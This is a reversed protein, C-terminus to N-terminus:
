KNAVYLSGDNSVGRVKYMYKRTVGLTVQEKITDPLTGVTHPGPVSKFIILQVKTLKRLNFGELPGQLKKKLLTHKRPDRVQYTITQGPSLFYKTKKLIKCGFASISRSMDFPTVGRKTIDIKDLSAGVNNDLIRRDVAYNISFCEEARSVNVGNMEAEKTFYLDYLDVELIPVKTTSEATPANVFSTNTMTIDLVGSQFMYNTDPRMLEGNVLEDAQTANEINSIYTMDNFWTRDISTSNWGYLCTSVVGQNGPVDNDVDLKKNFVVQRTGLSKDSVAGVKKVFSTWKKKKRPNMSKKTYIRKTDHQFTVGTKGYSRKANSFKRKKSFRKM